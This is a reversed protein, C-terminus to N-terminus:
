CLLQEILSVHTLPNLKLTRHHAMEKKIDRKLNKKHILASNHLYKMKFYFCIYFYVLVKTQKYSMFLIIMQVHSLRPYKTILILIFYTLLPATWLCIVLSQHLAAKILSSQILFEYNLVAYIYYGFLIKNFECTTCLFLTFKHVRM